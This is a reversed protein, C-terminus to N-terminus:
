RERLRQHMYESLPAILYELLSRDGTKIEARAAMGPFLPAPKGDLQLTEPEISIRVLYLLREHDAGM